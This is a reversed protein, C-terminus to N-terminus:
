ATYLSWPMHDRNSSAGKGNSFGKGTYREGSRLLNATQWM